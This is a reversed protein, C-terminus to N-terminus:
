DESKLIDPMVIVTDGPTMYDNKEVLWLTKMHDMVYVLYDKGVDMVMSEHAKCCM